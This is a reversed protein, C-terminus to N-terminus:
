DNALVHGDLEAVVVVVPVEVAAAVVAALGIGSALLSVCGM